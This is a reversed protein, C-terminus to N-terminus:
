DRAGHFEVAHDRTTVDDSGAAIEDAVDADDPFLDGRDTLREVGGAGVHDIGRSM